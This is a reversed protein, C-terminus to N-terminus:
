DPLMVLAAQPSGSWPRGHGPLILDADLDRIRGLSTRALDADLHFRKDMVQPGTRDGLLDMTVLGDGSFLIGKDKCHFMVHGETHGPTHVAVPNGPLDLRDRDAFTGVTELHDLTLVGAWIMPLFNRLAKISFMPLETATVAFRGTYTGVAREEEDEHVMVDVGADQAKKALGFHDAHAHTAVVGAVSDLSLGVSQLGDNLVKWERSCGADIVTAEDGEKLLYFNHDRSGLKFVGDAVQEM